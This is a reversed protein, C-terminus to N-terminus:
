RQVRIKTGYQILIPKLAAYSKLDMRFGAFGSAHRKLPTWRLILNAHDGMEVAVGNAKDWPLRGRRTGLFYVWRLLLGDSDAFIEKAQFMLRPTVLILLIEAIAVAGIGSAVLLPVDSRKHTTLVVVTLLLFLVVPTGIITVKSQLVQRPWLQNQFPGVRGIKGALLPNPEM